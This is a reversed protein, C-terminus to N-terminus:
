GARVDPECMSGGSEPFRSLLRVNAAEEKESKSRVRGDIGRKVGRSLRPFFDRAVHPFSCVHYRHLVSSTDLPESRSKFLVVCFICVMAEQSVQM